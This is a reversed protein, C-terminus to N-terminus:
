SAAEDAPQYNGVRLVPQFKHSRGRLQSPLFLEADQRRPEWEASLRSLSLTGPVM